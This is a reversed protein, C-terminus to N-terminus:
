LDINAFHKVGLEIANNKVVIKGHERLKNTFIESFTKYKAFESISSFLKKTEDFKTNINKLILYYTDNYLYLTISKAIKKFNAIGFNSLYLSHCFDCFTDFSDFVYILQSNKVNYNKRKVILKKHGGLNESGKQSSAQPLFKTITFVLIDDSSYFVEILLKCGETFFNLEKEAKKLIDLFLGQSNISKTLVTHIDTNNEKLDKSNMIVRIKNETLKEIKM